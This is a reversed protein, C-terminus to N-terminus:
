ATRLALQTALTSRLHSLGVRLAAASAQHSVARFLCNGDSRMRSIKFFKERALEVEFQRERLRQEALTYGRCLEEAADWGDGAAAL